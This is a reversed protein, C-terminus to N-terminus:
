QQQIRFFQNTPTPAPLVLQVLITQDSNATYFAYTSSGLAPIKFTSNTWNRLDASRQLTYSRGTLTLFQVLPAGANYSVLTATLPIGNLPDGGALYAQRLTRSDGFLLSNANVQNLTLSSGLAGLIAYEWADPIGDSNADIGLTLDLRTSSSPQGLHSFDGIMEIPTNTIGSMVVFLKFPAAAAYATPKYTIPTLGADMPVKLQYNVGVAIGSSVQAVISVGNSAVLIIKVDTSVFPTGYQDRVLGYLTHTPAPPYALASSCLLFCFASLLFLARFAFTFFPVARFSTACTELRSYRRNGIPAVNDYENRETDRLMRLSSASRYLLNSVQAVFRNRRANTSNKMKFDEKKM